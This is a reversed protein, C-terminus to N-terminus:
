AWIGLDHDAGNGTDDDNSKNEKSSKGNGKGGNKNDRIGYIDDVYYYGNFPNWIATCIKGKYEALCHNNDAHSLITVTDVGGHLSHIVAETEQRM